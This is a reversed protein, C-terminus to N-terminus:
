RGFTERYAKAYAEACEHKTKTTNAACDTMFEKNMRKDDQELWYCCGVVPSVFLCIAGWMKLNEIVTKFNSM